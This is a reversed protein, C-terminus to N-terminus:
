TERDMKMFRGLELGRIRITQEELIPRVRESLYCEHKVIWPSVLGSYHQMVSYDPQKFNLIANEMTVFSYGEFPSKPSPNLLGMAGAGKILAGLSMSSCEFLCARNDVSLEDALNQLSSIIGSVLKRRRRELADLVLTLM